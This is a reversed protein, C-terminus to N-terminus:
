SSKTMANTTPACGDGPSAARRARQLAVSLIALDAPGIGPIRGAAGLSRPRHLAFKERAERSLAAVSGFPFADPIPTAEDRSARAIAVEQRKVYGALKIEIAVRERIEPDGGLADAVDDPGVEPRRLMEAVTAGGAVRTTEAAARARGLAARRAEFAAVAEADLLGIEAGLPSLRSDANDHRLVVRYEARSTLMRYPEDVGRTVLDDILVGIYADGRGLVIPARGQAARAANIGAVIGQAAAEEYGSTGNLQGCHYLGAVRRTELTAFLETPPVYDYEVAYGPRLMSAEELGPLTRLMALQVEAPLSTSFGGVYLSNTTWGEPEIFILHSPNHAFKVVKDEISPCYRPGIGAILDLGYLPSRHLNDRVLAHTRENTAVVYCPLQPGAFARPSRYSFPLPVPSPLQERMRTVDVTNADVRPPTGTKLRGTPFGLRRLAESLALAPAEGVRGAAEVVDGRFIKGGLFTGTALVVRRARFTRGDSTVVGRVAGAEVLLDDVLGRVITLHECARLLDGAEAVYREKDAQARLARVAPGKSENLFRVHLSSRDIIRAMAGGLADIERVLQGKASGGISPNCALTCIREPDGTVLLTPVGMTAAAYAAEVGAHGGGVVIVAADDGIGNMLAPTGRLASM